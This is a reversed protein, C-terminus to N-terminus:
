ADNHDQKGMRTQRETKSNLSEQVWRGTPRDSGAEGPDTEEADGAATGM